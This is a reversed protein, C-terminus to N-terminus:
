TFSNAFNATTKIKHRKSIKKENHVDKHSVFNEFRLFFSNKKNESKGRAFFFRLFMLNKSKQNQIVGGGM